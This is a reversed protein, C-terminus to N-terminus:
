GCEFYREVTRAAAETSRQIFGDIEAETVLAITEGELDPLSDLFDDLEPGAAIGSRELHRAIMTRARDWDMERAAVDATVQRWRELTEHDIFGCEISQVSFALAELLRAVTPPDDGFSRDFGYQLLRDMVNARVPGGLAEHQLFFRRYIGTIYQEDLVLHTLYGAVFARTAAPIAAPDALHGYMEFFAAVSDQHNHEGLDFFHTARRDGRTIVRIDPTTSGLLYPGPEARLDAGGLMEGVNRAVVMHFTIPPM